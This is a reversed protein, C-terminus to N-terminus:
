RPVEVLFPARPSGTRPEILVEGNVSLRPFQRMLMEVEPAYLTSRPDYADAGFVGINVSSLKKGHNHNFWADYGQSRLRRVATEARNVYTTYDLDEDGFTGWQAIQLTYLPHRDGMQQRLTRIDYPDARADQFSAPRAPLARPFAPRGDSLKVERVRMMTERFGPDSLSAFKGLCVASGDSVQDVFLPTLEPYRGALDHRLAKATERHDAGSFTVLAISWVEGSQQKRPAAVTESPRTTRPADALVDEGAEYLQYRDTRPSPQAQKPACSGGVFFFLSFAALIARSCRSTM